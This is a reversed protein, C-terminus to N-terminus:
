PRRKPSSPHGDRRRKSPGVAGPLELRKYLPQASQLQELLRRAREDRSTTSHRAITASQDEDELPEDTTAAESIQKSAHTGQMIEEDGRDSDNQGTPGAISNLLRHADALVSGKLSNSANAHRLHELLGEKVHWDLLCLQHLASASTASADTACAQRDSYRGHSLADFIAGISRDSPPWTAIVTAINRQFIHSPHMAKSLHAVIIEGTRSIDAAGALKLADPLLLTVLDAFKTNNMTHCLPLLGSSYLIRCWRSGEHKMLADLTRWTRHAIAQDLVSTLVLPLEPTAKLARERVLDLLAVNAAQRLPVPTCEAKLPARLVEELHPEILIPVVAVLSAVVAVARCRLALDQPPRVLPLLKPILGEAIAPHLNSFRGLACIAECRIAIPAKEDAACSCVAPLYLMYRHAQLLELLLSSEREEADARLADSHMYDYEDNGEFEMPMPQHRSALQKAEARLKTGCLTIAGGLTRMLIAASHQCTRCAEQMETLPRALLTEAVSLSHVFIVKLAQEVAGARALRVFHLEMFATAEDIQSGSQQMSLALMQLTPALCARACSDESQVLAEAITHLLWTIPVERLGQGTGCEMACSLLACGWAREGWHQTASCARLLTPVLTLIELQTLRTSHLLTEALACQDSACGISLLRAVTSDADGAIVISARLLRGLQAYAPSAQTLVAARHLIAALCNASLTSRELLFFDPPGTGSCMAVFLAVLWEFHEDFLRAWNGQPSKPACPEQTDEEKIAGNLALRQIDYPNNQALAQIALALNYVVQKSNEELVDPISGILAHTCDIFDQTNQESRAVELAPTGHPMTPHHHAQPKVGTKKQTAHADCYVHMEALATIAKLAQARSSADMEPALARQLALTAAQRLAARDLLWPPVSRLIRFIVDYGLKLMAKATALRAAHKVALSIADPILGSMITAAALQPARRDLEVHFQLITSPISSATESAATAQIMHILNCLLVTIGAPFTVESGRSFVHMLADAVPAHLLTSSAVAHAVGDTRQERILFECVSTLAAADLQKKSFASRSTALILAELLSCPAGVNGKLFHSSGYAAATLLSCFTECVDTHSQDKVSALIRLGLKCAVATLVRGHSVCVASQISKVLQSAVKAQASQDMMEIRNVVSDFDNSASEPSRLLKLVGEIDLTPAGDLPPPPPQPTRQSARAPM